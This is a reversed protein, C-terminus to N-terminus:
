CVKAIKTYYKGLTEDIKNINQTQSLKSVITTLINQNNQILFRPLNM